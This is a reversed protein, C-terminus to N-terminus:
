QFQEFDSECSSSCNVFHCNVFCNIKVGKPGGSNELALVFCQYVGTDVGHRNVVLACLCHLLSEAALCM